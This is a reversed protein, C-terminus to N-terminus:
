STLLRYHAALSVNWRGFSSYHAPRRCDSLRELLTKAWRENRPNTM